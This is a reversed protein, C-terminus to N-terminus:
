PSSVGDARELRMAAGAETFHVQRRELVGGCHDCLLVPELMAGCARHTVRVPPGAPTAMWRNAWHTMLMMIPFFALGKETLRYEHHNSRAASPVRRLVDLAALTRLRQSLLTPPVGLDRQFDVFRRTGLLAAALMVTSWRDGLLAMTEPFQLAPDTPGEGRASRRRFRPPANREPDAGPSREGATDRAGVVAGCSACGLRADARAGCRDHALQPLIEAKGAVWRREWAWIAVLLSWLELGAETLLYEHREPASSYPVRRLVGGGVLDRLRRALVPDSIGLSETWGRFRRTHLLFADRLILLTWLDGLLRIARGISSVERGDDATIV